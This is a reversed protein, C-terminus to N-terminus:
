RGKVALSSAREKHVIVLFRTFNRKNTEIGKAIIEMQYKEAAREGAIAAVKKKGKEVIWAASGATDEREVLKIHPYQKFFAQCQQIAM